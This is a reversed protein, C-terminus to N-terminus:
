AVLQLFTSFGQSLSLFSIKLFSPKERRSIAFLSTLCFILGPLAIASTEVLTLQFHIYWCWFAGGCSSCYNPEVESIPSPVLLSHSARLFPLFFDPSIGNLRDLQMYFNPSDALLWRVRVNLFQFTEDFSFSCVLWRCNLSTEELGSIIAWYM